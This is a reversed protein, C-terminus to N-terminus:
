AASRNEGIRGERVLEDCAEVLLELDINLEDLMDSYSVPEGNKLLELIAAKAQEKTTISNNGLPGGTSIENRAM